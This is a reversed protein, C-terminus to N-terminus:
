GNDTLTWYRGKCYALPSQGQNIVAAEIRGVILQHDGILHSVEMVCEMSALCDTLVPVGGLGASWSLGAFRDEAETAFINSLDAQDARLIHVCFHTTREFVDFLNAHKDICWSILPPTLSVAAFSSVTMGSPRRQDDLTTVVAVGTPYQSYLQKIQSIDPTPM